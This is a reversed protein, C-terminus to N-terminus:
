LKNGNVMVEVNEKNKDYLILIDKESSYENSRFLDNCKIIKKITNLIESEKFQMYEEVVNKNQFKEITCIEIYQINSGDIKYDSLKIGDFKLFQLLIDIAEIGYGKIRITGIYINAMESYTINTEMKITIRTIEKEM